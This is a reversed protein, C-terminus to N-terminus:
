VMVILINIGFMTPLLPLCRISVATAYYWIVVPTLSLVTKFIYNPFTPTLNMLTVQWFFLMKTAIEGLHDYIPDTMELCAKEAWTTLSETMPFGTLFYEPLLVLKCNPGIFAKSAAIQQAIRHITQEMLSRAESRDNARNVAEAKVQLALAQFPSIQHISKIM